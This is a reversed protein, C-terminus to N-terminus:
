WLIAETKHERHPKKQGRPMHSRLERVPSWVGASSLSTRVVPNAPFDGLIINLFSYRQQMITPLSYRRSALWHEGPLKSHPGHKLKEEVTIEWKCLPFSAMPVPMNHWTSKVTVSRLSPLMCLLSDFLSTQPSGQPTWHNLSQVEVAPPMPEFGPWPVLIRCAMHCLWFHCLFRTHHLTLCDEQQWPEKESPSM